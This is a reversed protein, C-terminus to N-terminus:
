KELALRALQAVKEPLMNEGDFIECIDEDGSNALIKLAPKDSLHPPLQALAWAAMGRCISDNDMLGKVLWLRAKEALDPNAQAFRGIAWYCSRRLIDHDCYNDDHGLDIIYSILISAYIKALAPSRALTEAFAAPVGWGINGSEENMRWMFNRVVNRAAEQDKEAIRAVTAGLACAARHMTLSDLLLFSLLPGVNEMGGGAISELHRRWDDGELLTRLRAKNNRMRGM